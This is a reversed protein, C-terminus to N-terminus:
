TDEKNNGIELKIEAEEDSLDLLQEKIRFRNPNYDPLSNWEKELLNRKQQIAMLRPDIDGQDEQHLRKDIRDAVWLSSVIITTLSISITEIIM